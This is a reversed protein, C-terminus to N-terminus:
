PKTNGCVTNCTLDGREARLTGSALIRARLGGRGKLAAEAGPGVAHDMWGCPACEEVGEFRVGQIEFVKGVLSNLDAGEVLANRRFVSPEFAPTRGRLLGEYVAWDFFTIQGKFNERYDCYRDGEIGRGAVCAISPVELIPHTGPPGGHHGRFNHRPSIYLRRVRLGPVSSEESMAPKRAPNSCM